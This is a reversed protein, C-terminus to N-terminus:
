RLGLLAYAEVAVSEGKLEPAGLARTVARERILAFTSAGIVISGEPAFTPAAHRREDHRRDRRLQPLLRALPQS